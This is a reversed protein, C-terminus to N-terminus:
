TRGPSGASRSLAGASGSRGTSGIARAPASGASAAGPRVAGALGGAGGAAGAAGLDAGHCEQCKGIAEVLHRGRALSASDAAARVPSDPFDYTRRIHRTSVVYLAAVALAVVLVLGGLARGTWRLWRPM